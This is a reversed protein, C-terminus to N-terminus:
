LVKEKVRKMIASFGAEMIMSTIIITLTWAFQDRTELFLKANSIETGIAILSPAAALAEAAIGSKWGLGLATESSAVFANFMTPLLIFRLKEVKTCGFVKAVELQDKDINMLANLVANYVVPFVILAVIFVPLLGINKNFIIYAIFIFSVIPTAKVVANLPYLLLRIFSSQSAALAALLGAIVSIVTGTLVRLLSHVITVRFQHTLCLEYLRVLISVPNPIILENGVAASVIFPVAIWVLIVAIYPM